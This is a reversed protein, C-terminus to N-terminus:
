HRRRDGGDPVLTNPAARLGTVIADACLAVSLAWRSAEDGLLDLAAEQPAWRAVSDHPLPRQSREGLDVRYYDCRLRVGGEDSPHLIARQFLAAQAVEHGTEAQVLRALAAETGTDDVPGGPLSFHLGDDLVLVRGGDLVLALARQQEASARVQDDGFERVGRTITM